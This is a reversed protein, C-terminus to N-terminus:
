SCLTCLSEPLTATIGIACEMIKLDFGELFEQFICSIPPPLIDSPRFSQRRGLV